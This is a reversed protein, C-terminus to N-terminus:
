KGVAGNGDEMRITGSLKFIKYKSFDENSEFGYGYLIEDATHITVYKDSHIKKRQEDWIIEETNLREGKTNVLVVSDRAIMKKEHEYRIAYKAKLFNEVVQDKNYFYCTIGKTMETYPKEDQYREILPAFMKAKIIGSDTYLMEVNVGKEVPFKTPESLLKVKEIDNKCGAHVLTGVLLVFLFSPYFKGMIKRFTRFDIM